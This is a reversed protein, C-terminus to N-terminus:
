SPLALKNIVQNTSYNALFGELALCCFPSTNRPSILYVACLSYSFPTISSISPSGGACNTFVEIQILYTIISCDLGVILKSRKLRSPCGYVTKRQDHKRTRSNIQILIELQPIDHSTQLRANKWFPTLKLKKKTNNTLGGRKQRKKDEFVIFM